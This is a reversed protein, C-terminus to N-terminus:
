PLKPDVYVTRNDTFIVMGPKAGSPKKVHRVRVYDVPVQASNKGKSHWAAISAACYIDEPSPELGGTRLIVHSGPIDKTHLWLDTKDALKLTLEDNEKNNRGVLIEYGSPSIYKYPSLKFRASKKNKGKDANKIRVFGEEALEGRIADIEEPSKANNLFTLASQLYEIDKETELIQIQKEKIATKSKGYKKYFNQANKSPSYKPDLPITVESNNYYSTVKLEKMGPKTLHLNATLLEGFLRYDESNEADLLDEKLRQLKLEAKELLSATNKTLAHSRQMMRNTSDRHEFYYDVTESISGFDLRECDEEYQRLELIHFDVPNKQDDLYVHPVFGEVETADGLLRFFDAPITGDERNIAFSQAVQPSIGGITALITKYSAPLNSFYDETIEEFPMKDQGPPYEYKLGPLIQRTRSTDISIRKIGDLITGSENDVLIINSHKGMIEFVLKKSMSVGLESVTDFYIEIIRDSGVQKIESIRGGSLHKRLLMCFNPPSPPNMPTETILHLRADSSGSSAFLKYNGDKGRVSIVLESKIPQYIKDVKGMLISSRLEEVIGKTIIGDFAM